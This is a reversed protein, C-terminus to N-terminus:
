GGYAPMFAEERGLEVLMMAASLLLALHRDPDDLPIDFEERMKRVRYLVTNRHTFLRACTEQLSRHCCLYTYLTLCYLTDDERDREGLARVAPLVLDRRQAMHRLQMLAQYDEAAVAFPHPMRPLLTEMLERTASYVEPLRESLSLAEIDRKGGSERILAVLKELSADDLQLKGEGTTYEGGGFCHYGLCIDISFDFTNMNM